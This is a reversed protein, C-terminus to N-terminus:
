VMMIMAQIGGIVMGFFFGVWTIAKLEKSAVSLILSELEQDSMRNISNEVFGAIDTDSILHETNEVLILYLLEFIIVRVKEPIVKTIRNKEMKQNFRNWFQNRIQDKLLHDKVLKPDFLTHMTQGIARALRAKERPILGPTLPVRFNGIHKEMLPRFLMKIAIWNTFYGIWGSILIVVPIKVM